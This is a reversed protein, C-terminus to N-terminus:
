NNCGAFSETDTFYISFDSGGREETFYISFDAMGKNEVFYWHGEEDAYLANDEEYIVIDSFAESEEEFVQYHARSPDKEIYVRGYLKCYRNNEATPLLLLLIVMCSGLWHIM